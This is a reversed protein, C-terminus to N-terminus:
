CMGSSAKTLRRAEEGLPDLGLVYRMSEIMTSKGTGRGGVLVNLNGNLHVLTNGLFGGEWTMAVFEHPEPSPDSNLRIRSEPDLFAQRLAEVSVISMKTYCSAGDKKLDEPANVDSANLIAIPRARRHQGDKNELISRLNEPAQDIPGPLAVAFLDPSTWVNIRTQGNLKKLIGGDSAAHAAICIGGWRKACTLLEGSDLSGTPSSANPDHVGCEGIFRELVPDKDADFLCLLHVGDKEVAEFGSFAFLGAARAAQVLGASEKVRYHDTVGIVEIGLEQCAAIIAANYETENHFTTPKGHRSL